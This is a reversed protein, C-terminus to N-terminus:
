FHLLYSPQSCLTLHTFPIALQPSLTMHTFNNATSILDSQLRYPQSHLYPWSLLTFHSATSILDCTYFPQSHLFPWFHLRYPQSYFFTLLTFLIAPQPSLTLHTFYNATSILDYTYFYPYSRPYHWFYLIAPQPYLTLHTFPIDLQLSLTLYQLVAPPPSLSLHTLPIAVLICPYKNTLSM